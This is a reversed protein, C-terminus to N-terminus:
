VFDYMVISMVFLGGGCGVLVVVDVMMVYIFFLVVLGFVEVMYVM